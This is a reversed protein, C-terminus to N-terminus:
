GFSIIQQGVVEQIISCGALGAIGRQFTIKKRYGGFTPRHGFGIGRFEEFLLGVQDIRDVREVVVGLCQKRKLSVEAHWHGFSAV